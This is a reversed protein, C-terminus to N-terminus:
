IQVVDGAKIKLRTDGQKLWVSIASPNYVTKKDSSFRLNKLTTLYDVIEINTAFWIDDQQTLDQCFKEFQHWHWEPHGDFEFSHGWIYLLSAQERDNLFNDLIQDAYLQNHHCTPHWLPLQQPLAFANTNEVTRAYQIGIESLYNVITENYFGFPFSMGRIPYNVLRELAQKDLAIETRIEAPSLENLHPHHVTHVSVEHGCYLSAVEGIAVNNPQGLKGSNLHFTAKLGYKNLLNVLQRDQKVGDDYSFTLAKTKGNPFSFFDSLHSHNM